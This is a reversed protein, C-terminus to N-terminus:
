EYRLAVLPDVRTARRAPIYCAAMTVVAMIIAVGTFTVPDMPGVGYLQSALLRTLVFSGLLGLTIGAVCFKGGEKMVLLLVDRRQAGLAMRIGMERARKSVLFALVGYVGVMGLALAVGAFATFLSATSAPTSAAQSVIAHMRQVESVPVDPGLEQVIHRLTAGVQQGEAATRIAITMEAPVRGDELTAHSTYPVYATGRLYSPVSSQLDYARVDAVVGIVTRWNKEGVFRVHKGVVDRQKWFRRATEASIVAVPSGGTEDAPTFWRGALLPIGMVRFYDPTVVDLWFLPETTGTPLDMYDELEFSRKTVRGGLPLTNVLAAGSVGPTTTARELVSRYFALCRATDDCFSENPTIRATLIQESRFGPDVHSLMWFSRILLGASTVLLVAFAVEAIALSNRLWQSVSVSAGRGASNLSEAPACRSLQLAPALGFIFGTVLALAGTFILVRWDLHVDALRPTDAPLATKLLSMGAAALALGFMGGLTSLLVSETLAQRAIRRRGAGLASRIGMEKERSAARSLSLNAVNACAILLVLAVAGLLLLLRVRVDAVMGNQLQVVSVDANWDAPMRWPFLAFVHSQFLRIEAAAQPMTAGPRLRGIVPMYDGAWYTSPNGPENHLPVWLQTKPSPFRFDAPMVGLVQRSVGELEISRGIIAADRGFRQEWLNHSLVVYRDDGPADEGAHFTRGLEPQAGLISLLEASVATGTLRVPEGFRTLNFEHGEAYTAVDMTHVQEHMAVFAGKPYTGTVSVLEAPNPYPLSVLLIGNVLSFIATNAGIGLALTIVAVATFGPSKRLQRLAYRVDQILGNM